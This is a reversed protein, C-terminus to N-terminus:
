QSTGGLKKRAYERVSLGERKAEACLKRYEEKTLRHTFLVDMRQSAKKKPRGRKMAILQVCFTTQTLAQSPAAM